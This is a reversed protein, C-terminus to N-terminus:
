LLSLEKYYLQRAPHQELVMSTYNGDEVSILLKTCCTSTQGVNLMKGTQISVCSWTDKNLARRHNNATRGSLYWWSYSMREVGTM